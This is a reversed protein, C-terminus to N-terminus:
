SEESIEVIDMTSIMMDAKDDINYVKLLGLKETPYTYRLVEAIKGKFTLKNDDYKDSKKLSFNFTKNYLNNIELDSLNSLTIWNYKIM